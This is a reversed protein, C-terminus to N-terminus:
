RDTSRRESRLGMIRRLRRRDGAAPVATVRVKGERATPARCGRSASTLVRVGPRAAALTLRRASCARRRVVVSSWCAPCVVLGCFVLVPARM